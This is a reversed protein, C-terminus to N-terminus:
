LYGTVLLCEQSFPGCIAEKGPKGVGSRLCRLQAPPSFRKEWTFTLLVQFKIEHLCRWPYLSKTCPCVWLNLIPFLAFTAPMKSCMDLRRPSPTFTMCVLRLICLKNFLIICSINGLFKSGLKIIDHEHSPFHWARRAYADEYNLAPFGPFSALCCHQQTFKNGSGNGGDLKQNVHFISTFPRTSKM